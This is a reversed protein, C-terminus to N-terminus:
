AGKAGLSLPAGAVPASPTAALLSLGRERASENASSSSLLAWSATRTMSSIRWRANPSKSKTGPLTPPANALPPPAALPPEAGTEEPARRLICARLLEVEPKKVAAASDDAVLPNPAGVGLEAASISLVPYAAAAGTAAGAGDGM